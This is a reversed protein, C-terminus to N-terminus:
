RVSSIIWRNISTDYYLEVTGDRDLVAAGKTKIRNVASSLGSDNIFTIAQSGNNGITLRRGDKPAGIGTIDVPTSASLAWFSASSPNYDNQDTTIQPIGSGRKLHLSETLTVEPVTIGEKNMFKTGTGNDTVLLTGVARHGMIINNVGSAIHIDLTNNNFFGDIKNNNRTTKVATTNVEFRSISSTVLSDSDSDIGIACNDINGSFFLEDAPSSLKIGTGCDAIFGGYWQTANAEILRMATTCNRVEVGHFEHLFGADNTGNIDLAVSGTRTFDKISVDKFRNHSTRRLTVAGYSLGTLDRFGIREFTHGSANTVSGSGFDFCVYGAPALFEVTGAEESDLFDGRGVGVIRISRQLGSTVPTALKYSGSVNFNLAGGTLPLADVMAQIIPTNNTSGDGVAGWQSSLIGEKMQLVAVNGNALEHDGYGDFSQPTVILYRAAGGDGKVYYGGTEVFQGDKLKALKLKAVTDFTKM